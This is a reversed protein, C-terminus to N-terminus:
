PITLLDPRASPRHDAPPFRDPRPRGPGHRGPHRHIDTRKKTSTVTLAVYCPCARDQQEIPSSSLCPRRPSTAIRETSFAALRGEFLVAQRIPTALVVQGVMGAGFPAPQVAGAASRAAREALRYGRPSRRRAGTLHLGCALGVRHAADPGAQDGPERRVPHQGAAVPAVAVGAVGAVVVVVLGTVTRQSHVTTPRRRCVSLASRV